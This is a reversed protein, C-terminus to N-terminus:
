RIYMNHSWQSSNLIKKEQRIKLKSEWNWGFINRGDRFCPIMSHVESTIRM